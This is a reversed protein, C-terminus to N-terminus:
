KQNIILEYDEKSMEFENCLIAVYQMYGFELAENWEGNKLEEPTVGYQLRISKENMNELTSETFQKRDLM